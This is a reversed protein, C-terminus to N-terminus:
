ESLRKEFRDKRTSQPIETPYNGDFCAGCFGDHGILERLADVPLFGLSDAGIKEAIQEVTYHCAILNDTSDIDTGYYCPHLFTPASVRM